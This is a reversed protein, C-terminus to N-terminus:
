KKHSQIFENLESDGSVGFPHIITESEIFFGYKETKFFDYSRESISSRGEKKLTIMPFKPIEARPNYKFILERTGFLTVIWVGEVLKGLDEKNIKLAFPSQATIKKATTKM